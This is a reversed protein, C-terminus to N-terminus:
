STTQSCMVQSIVQIPLIVHSMVSFRLWAHGRVRYASMKRFVSVWHYKPPRKGARYTRGPAGSVDMTQSRSRRHLANQRTVGLSPATELDARSNQRTPVKQPFNEINITALRVLYLPSAQVFSVIIVDYSHYGQERKNSIPLQGRGRKWIGINPVSYQLVKSVFSKKVYLIFNRSKSKFNFGKVIFLPFVVLDRYWPTCCVASLQVTCQLATCVALCYSSNCYLVRTDGGAMRRYLPVCM